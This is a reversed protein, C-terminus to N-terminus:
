TERVLAMSSIMLANGGAGGVLGRGSGDEWGIGGGPGELTIM